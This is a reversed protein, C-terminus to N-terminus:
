RVSARDFTGTRRRQTYPCFSCTKVLYTPVREGVKRSKRVTVTESTYAHWEFLDNNMFGHDQNDCRRKAERELNSKATPRTRRPKCFDKIWGSVTRTDAEPGNPFKKTLEAQAQPTTLDKDQRRLKTVFKRLPDYKKYKDLNSCDKPYAPVLMPVWPDNRKTTYLLPKDLLDSPITVQVM